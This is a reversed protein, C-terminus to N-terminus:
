EHVSEGQVTTIRSPAPPAGSVLLSQLWSRLAAPSKLRLLAQTEGEGIKVSLGGLENVVAFGDEDTIDDGAYVPRKGAFPPQAMFKRIAEGKNCGHPKAEVVMKGRQLEYNPLQAPVLSAMFEEVQPEFQNAQRFHLSFSIAKDEFLVGPHQTAFEEAAAKARALETESIPTRELEGDALRFEAGHIGAVAAKLPHVHQDITAIARGSIIALAGGCERQLKQLTQLLEPAVKVQDPQPAIDALTGDFDLFFACDKTAVDWPSDILHAGKAM